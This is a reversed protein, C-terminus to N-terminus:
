LSWLSPILHGKVNTSVKYGFVNEICEKLKEISTEKETKKM